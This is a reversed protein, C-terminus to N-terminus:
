LYWKLLSSCLWSVRGDPGAVRRRECVNQSLTENELKVNVGKLCALAAPRLRSPALDLMCHCQASKLQLPEKYGACVSPGIFLKWLLRGALQLSSGPGAPTYTRLIIKKMTVLTEHVRCFKLNEPSNRPKEVRSIIEFLVKAFYM